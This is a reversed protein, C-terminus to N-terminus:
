ARAGTFSVYEGKYEQIDTGLRGQDRPPLRRQHTEPGLEEARM